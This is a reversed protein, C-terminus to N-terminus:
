WPWPARPRAPVEAQAGPVLRGGGAQGGPDGVAGRHRDAHQAPDLPGLGRQAAQAQALQPHAVVVVGGAELHGEGVQGRHDLAPGLHDVGHPAGAVAVDGEVELAQARAVEVLGERVSGPPRRGRLPVAAGTPLLSGRHVRGPGPARERVHPHEVEGPEVRPAVAGPQQGVEAGVHDLDLRRAGAVAEPEGLHAREQGGM